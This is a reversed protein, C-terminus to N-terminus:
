SGQMGGAKGAAGLHQPHGPMGPMQHQGNAIPMGRGMGVPWYGQPMRQPMGGQVMNMGMQQYNMNFMAPYPAVVAPHAQQDQGPQGNQGAAATANAAGNTMHHQMLQPHGVHPVVPRAQTNFQHNMAAYNYSQQMAMQQAAQQQSQPIPTRPLQQASVMPSNRQAAAAAVAAQAQAQAQAANTPQSAGGANQQQQQQQMNRMQQQYYLYQLNPQQQAQAQAQARAQAQAAM